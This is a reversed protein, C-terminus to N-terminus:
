APQRRDDLAARLGGFGKREPDGDLFESPPAFLTACVAPPQRAKLRPPPIDPFRANPFHLRMAGNGRAPWNFGRRSLSLLAGRFYSSAGEAAARKIGGADAADRWCQM